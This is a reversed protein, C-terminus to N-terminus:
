GVCIPRDLREIRTFKLNKTGVKHWTVVVEIRLGEGAIDDTATTPQKHPKRRSRCHSVIDKLPGPAIVVSAPSSFSVFSVSLVARFTRNSINLTKLWM